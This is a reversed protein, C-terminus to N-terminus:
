PAPNDSNYIDRVVLWKGNAVRQWVVIYKGNDHLPAAGAAKPQIDGSWTGTEVALDGRVMVDSTTIKINRFGADWTAQWGDSIDKVGDLVKANPPMFLADAAYIAAFARPNGSNYAAVAKAGADEIARRVAASDSRGQAALPLAASCVLGLVVLVRKSRMRVELDSIVAM